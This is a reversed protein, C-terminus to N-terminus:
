GSAPRARECAKVVARRHIADFVEDTTLGCDKAVEAITRTRGKAKADRMNEKHTGLFLHEPRVCPPNDCSHCVKKDGPDIGTALFYSVRHAGQLKNGDEDITLIFAGYDTTHARRGKWEWCGDETREVKSWFREVDSPIREIRAARKWQERLEKTMPVRAQKARERAARQYGAVKDPNAAQWEKIRAHERERHEERYVKGRALCAERNKAYYTGEKM